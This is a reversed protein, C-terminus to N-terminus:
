GFIPPDLGVGGKDALFDSISRVGRGGKDSFLIFQIVGRGGKDSAM